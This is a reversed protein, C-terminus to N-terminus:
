SADPAEHWDGATASAVWRRAGNDLVLAAAQAGTQRGVSRLLAELAAVLQPAEDLRLEALLAARDASASAPM